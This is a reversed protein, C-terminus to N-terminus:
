EDAADSTYLLCSRKHDKISIFPDKHSYADIRDDLELSEAISAAEANIQSEVNNDVKRYCSSISETLLKKYDAPTVRYFNHTKDAAVIVDPCDIIEKVKAALQTQFDNYVSKFKIRNPIDLILEEFAKLEPDPPAALPSKFGFTEKRRTIGPNKFHWLKWRCMSLFKLSQRLFISYYESRPPIPITRGSYPLSFPNMETILFFLIWSSVGFHSLM